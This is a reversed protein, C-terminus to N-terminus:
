SKSSLSVWLWLLGARLGKASSEFSRDGPPPPCRANLPVSSAQTTALGANSRHAPLRACGVAPRVPTLSGAKPIEHLLKAETQPDRSPGHPLVSQTAQRSRQGLYLM